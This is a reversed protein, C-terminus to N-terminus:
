IKMMSKLCEASVTFSFRICRLLQVPYCKVRLCIQFPLLYERQLVLMSISVYKKRSSPLLNHSEAWVVLLLSVLCLPIALVAVDQPTVIPMGIVAEALVVEFM